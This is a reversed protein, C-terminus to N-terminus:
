RGILVRLTLRHRRWGPDRPSWVPDFADVELRWRRDSTATRTGHLAALAAARADDVDPTAPADDDDPEYLDVQVLAVWRVAAGDGSAGADPNPGAVPLTEVYAGTGLSGTPAPGAWVRSALPVFPPLGAVTRAVEALVVSPAPPAFTVM